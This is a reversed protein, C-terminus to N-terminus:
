TIVSFPRPWLGAISSSASFNWATPMTSGSVPAGSALLAVLQVLIKEVSNISIARSRSSITAIVAAIIPGVPSAAKSLSNGSRVISTPIASCCATVLAAPM